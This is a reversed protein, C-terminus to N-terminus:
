RGPVSYGCFEHRGKAQDVEKIGSSEQGQTEALIIFLHRDSPDLPWYSLLYGRVKNSQKLSSARHHFPM